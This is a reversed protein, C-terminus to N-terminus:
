ALCCEVVILDNWEQVLSDDDDPIVISNSNIAIRKGGGRARSGIDEEDDDDSLDPLTFSPDESVDDARTAKTERHQTPSKRPWYVFIEQPLYEFKCHRAVSRRM